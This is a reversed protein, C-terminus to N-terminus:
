GFHRKPISGTERAKQVILEQYGQLAARAKLTIEEMLAWGVKLAVKPETSGLRTIDEASLEYLASEEEARVAASRPQKDVMSFEGLIDGFRLRTLEHRSGDELDQYVSLSGQLIVLMSDGPDGKEFLKEGKKLRRLKGKEMVLRSEAEDLYRCIQTRTFIHLM